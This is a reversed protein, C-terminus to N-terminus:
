RTPRSQSAASSFCRPEPPGRGKGSTRQLGEARWKSTRSLLFGEPSATAGSGGGSSRLTGSCVESGAGETPAARARIPPGGEGSRHPITGLVLRRQRSHLPGNRLGDRCIRSRKGRYTGSACARGVARALELTPVTDTLPARWWQPIGPDGINLMIEAGGTCDCVHGRSGPEKGLVESADHHICRRIEIIWRTIDWGALSLCWLM